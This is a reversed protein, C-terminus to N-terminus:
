LMDTTGVIGSTQKPKLSPKLNFNKQSFCNFLYMLQALNQIELNLKVQPTSRAINSGISSFFRRFNGLILSSEYIKNGDAPVATISRSILKRRIKNSLKFRDHTKSKNVSNLGLYDISKSNTKCVIIHTILNVTLRTDYWILASKTSITIGSNVESCIRQTM